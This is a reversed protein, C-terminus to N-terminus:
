PGGASAPRWDVAGFRTQGLYTYGLSVAGVTQHTDPLGAYSADRRSATYKLTIGHLNYVRVTLSVVGRIINESGGKEESVMDSVYYERLELDFLARDGFILRSEVLGQPTVGNHYDREGIGHITGASGYGVGALATSQLAVTRSLWWQSVNGLSVATTSIRFIQPAIYDYSGFIGWVGRQNDGSSYGSGYLLGRSIINELVNSTAATGQFQFYDFPRTYSYGPKGPLGYTVTFDAIAEGKQYSQPIPSEGTNPNVNVNSNVTANLNVGLQVRTYVAPNNSRFVGDFRKGFAYRNFGTSPSLVAAGVERWVGPGGDGSELLLSAMRFLPEGLFSGGFGTTIQDNISPPGTEGGLEWLLSGAATFGVSPWFDLGASRAFGHYLSGQYPHMFQNISFPDSDYVWKGSLNEKFSSVSSGYIKSDIAYRDYQNLLFEEGIIDVAPILYSKGRGVGWNLVPKPKDEAFATPAAQQAKTDLKPDEAFGTLPTLLTLAFAIGIITWRRAQLITPLNMDM